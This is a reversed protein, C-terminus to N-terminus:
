DIADIFAAAVVTADPEWPPSILVIADHDDGEDPTSSTVLVAPKASQLCRGRPRM